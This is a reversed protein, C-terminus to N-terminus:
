RELILKLFFDELKESNSNLFLTSLKPDYIVKNMIKRLIEDTKKSYQALHPTKKTNLPVGHVIQSRIGYIAKIDKFIKYREDNEKALFSAVREALKHALGSKDTSFICELATCYQSIKIGLDSSQRAAQIFLQALNLRDVGKIINTHHTKLVDFPNKRNKYNLQGIKKIEEKEFKTPIHKGTSTYSGGRLMNSRVLPKISELKINAYPFQVFGLMIDIAHDKILWFETLIRKCDYVFEMVLDDGNDNNIGIDSIRYFVANAKSLAGFELIGIAEYLNQSLLSRIFTINNTLKIDGVMNIGEGLDDSIKLNFAATIFLTKM